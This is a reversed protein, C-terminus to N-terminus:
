DRPVVDAYFSVPYSDDYTITAYKPNPVENITAGRYNIFWGKDMTLANSDCNSCDLTGYNEFLGASGSIIEESGWHDKDLHSNVKIIGYNQFHCEVSFQHRGEGVIEIEGANIVPKHNAIKMPDDYAGADNDNFSFGSEYSGNLIMKGMNYQRPNNMLFSYGDECDTAYGENDYTDYYFQLGYGQDSCRCQVSGDNNTFTAKTGNYFFDDIDMIARRDYNNVDDTNVIVDGLNVLTSFECSGNHLEVMGGEDVLLLYYELYAWAGDTFKLTGGNEVEIVPLVERNYGNGGLLHLGSIELTQGSKVLVSMGHLNPGDADSLTGEDITVYGEIEIVDFCHDSMGYDSYDDESDITSLVSDLEVGNEVPYYTPTPDTYFFAKMLDSFSKCSEFKDVVFSFDMVDRLIFESPPNDGLCFDELKPADEEPESYSYDDDSSEDYPEEDYYDEKDEEKEEREEAEEDDDENESESSAREFPSPGKDKCGCMSLALVLILLVALLRRKM